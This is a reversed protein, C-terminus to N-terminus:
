YTMDKFDRIKSDLKPVSWQIQQAGTGYNSTKWKGTMNTGGVTDGLSYWDFDWDYLYYIPQTANLAATFVGGKDGLIQHGGENAKKLAARDEVGGYVSASAIATVAM